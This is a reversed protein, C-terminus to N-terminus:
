RNGLSKGVSSAAECSVLLKMACGLIQPTTASASPCIMPDLKRSSRPGILPTPGMVTTGSACFDPMPRRRISATIVRPASARPMRSKWSEKLM